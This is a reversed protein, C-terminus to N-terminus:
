CAALVGHWSKNIISESGRMIGNPHFGKNIHGMKLPNWCMNGHEVQFTSCYNNSHQNDGHKAFSEPTNTWPALDIPRMGLYRARNEAIGMYNFLHTTCQNHCVEHALLREWWFVVVEQVFKCSDERFSEPTSSAGRPM